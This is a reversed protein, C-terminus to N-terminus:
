REQGRGGLLQDLGNGWRCSDPAGVRFEPDWVEKKYSGTPGTVAPGRNIQVKERSDDALRRPLKDDEEQRAIM